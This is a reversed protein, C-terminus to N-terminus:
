YLGVTRTGNAFDLSVRSRRGRLTYATSLREVRGLASEHRPFGGLPVTRGRVVFPATSGFALTGSTPSRWRVSFGEDDRVM